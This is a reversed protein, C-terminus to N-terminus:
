FRRMLATRVHVWLRHKSCFYFFFWMKKKQFNCNKCGHFIATYPVSMNANHKKYQWAGRWDDKYFRKEHSHEHLSLLRKAHFGKKGRSFLPASLSRPLWAASWRSQKRLVTCVWRFWRNHHQVAQNKTSVPWSGRFSTKEQRPEINVTVLWVWSTVWLWRLAYSVLAVRACSLLHCLGILLSACAWDM